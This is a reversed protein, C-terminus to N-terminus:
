EKPNLLILKQWVFILSVFNFLHFDSIRQLNVFFYFLFLYFLLFIYYIFFFRNFISLFFTHDNPRLIFAATAVAMAEKM